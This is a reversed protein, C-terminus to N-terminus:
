ASFQLRGCQSRGARSAPDRSVDSLQLQQPVLPRQRRGPPRELEMQSVSLTGPQHWYVLALEEPTRVAMPDLLVTRIVSYIAANAGIGIALSLVAVVTFARSAMLGRAVQKADLGIGTFWQGAM